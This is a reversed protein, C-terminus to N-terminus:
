INQRHSQSDFAGKKSLCQELSAQIAKANQYIRMGPLDLPPNGDELLLSRVAAIYGRAVESEESPNDEVKREIERIGRLNKKIETKLKRDLDVVPKAIDKLYHYQCYQYPVDPLLKEFALRISQQGDSVIGIIPYGLQAIPRILNQLEESSGSKLNKAVLVTGSFVERIVYLTENGKEPQVGDMSLLLGGNKESVDKLVERVHQDISAGLLTLYREYLMQANRDTTKVGRSNLEDAIEQRTMHQKFRLEGVLCLVDFGYTTFKMCLKEAEASRYLAGPHPCQQNPCRYAMSWAFIVGQLTSIKKKWAAHARVLKSECHPCNSMEPRFYITKEPVIRNKPRM